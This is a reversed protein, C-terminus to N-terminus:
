DLDDASWRNPSAQQFKLKWTDAQKVWVSSVHQYRRAGLDNSSHRFVADCSVLAATENLAIVKFNYLIVQTLDSDALGKVLDEKDTTDGSIEVEFFDPTLTREVYAADKRQQASAMAQQADILTQQVAAQPPNSSRTSRGAASAAPCLLSIALSSAVFRSALTKM